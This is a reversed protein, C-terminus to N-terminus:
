SSPSTTILTKTPAQWRSYTQKHQTHILVPRFFGIRNKRWKYVRLEALSIRHLTKLTQCATNQPDSGFCKAHSVVPKALPVVRCALCAKTQKGDSSTGLLDWQRCARSYRTSSSTVGGLHPIIVARGLRGFPAIVAGKLARGAIRPRAFNEVAFAILRRGQDAKSSTSTGPLTPPVLHYTYPTACNEIANGPNKASAGPDFVSRMHTGKCDTATSFKARGRIAPRASLPATMAGKPRSPRATIMGWKPPTVDDEVRYERAQRCHADSDKCQM